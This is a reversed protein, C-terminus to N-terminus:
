KKRTKNMMKNKELGLIKKLSRANKPQMNSERALNKLARSMM